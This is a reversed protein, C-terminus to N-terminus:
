EGARKEQDRAWPATLFRRALFDILVEVRAPRVMGPPTVVHLASETQTWDALVEELAGSRLERWILFEPQRAIGVGSLLAPLAVEGNNIFMRAPVRVAVPGHTAHEFHWLDPTALHSHSLGVHRELDRPHTPRGHRELYAPAAVLPARVTFLRRARLSSDPLRGIRLAVDFGQAVLDVRHDSLQLDITVEPYRDLFEPLVSGLHRIGFSMPAALRVMGRPAAAQEGTEAEIAEGEILIRRARDLAARGSETLSLRRSTRHFLPTGMRTEVRTVAKSVTAKSLMLEDAARSFSGREAVKAFIAWGEFDPLHAM